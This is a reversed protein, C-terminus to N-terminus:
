IREIRKLGFLGQPRLMLIAIMLVFPLVERFGSIHPDVYTSAMLEVVGIILAGIVCGPLSELGGLLLVPLARVLGYTGLSTDVAYVSAVLIGGIAAAMGGILWSISYIRGVDIGLARSLDPDESVSKMGFGMRTYRFFLVFVTFMLIAILFSAISVWSLSIGGISINGRPFFDPLVQPLGQWAIITIGQVGIGVLLTLLFTVLMPKGIVPRIILRNIVWGTLAGSLISLIIALPLPLGKSVALWWAIYSALVMMEGHAMNFIKCSKYVVLVGLAVLAYVGGLLIGQMLASAFTEM